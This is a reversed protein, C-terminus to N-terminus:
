ESTADSFLRRRCTRPIPTLRGSQLLRCYGCCRAGATTFAMREVVYKLNARRQRTSCQQGPAWRRSLAQEIARVRVTDDARAPPCYAARLWGATSAHWNRPLQEHFQAAWASPTALGATDLGPATAVALLPAAITQIM